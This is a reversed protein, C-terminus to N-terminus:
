ENFSDCMDSLRNVLIDLTNNWKNLYNIRNEVISLYLDKNIHLKELVVIRYLYSMKIAYLTAEIGNLCPQKQNIKIHMINVRTNVLCTLVKEFDYQMEKNFLITGYNNILTRLCPKLNGENQSNRQLPMNNRGIMEVLCESMEILFACKIDDTLGSDSTAYLYIQNVVGLEELLAEWAEFLSSSLIEKYDIFRDSQASLFNASTFLKSRQKKIHEVLVGYSNIDSIGHIFINELPIFAGDFIQLLRELKLLLSNLKFIEIDTECTLIIIRKEIEKIEIHIKIEKEVDFSVKSDSSSMRKDLHYIAELRNCKIATEM